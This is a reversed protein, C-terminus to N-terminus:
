RCKFELLDYYMRRALKEMPYRMLRRAVMVSWDESFEPHDESWEDIIDSITPTRNVDNQNM